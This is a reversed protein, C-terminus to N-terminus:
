NFFRVMVNWIENNKSLPPYDDDNVNLAVLPSLTDLEMRVHPKTRGRHSGVFTMVQFGHEAAASVMASPPHPAEVNSTIAIFAWPPPGSLYYSINQIMHGPLSSLQGSSHSGGGGGSKDIWPTSSNGNERVIVSFADSVLDIINGAELTLQLYSSFAM